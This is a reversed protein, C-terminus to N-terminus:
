VNKIREINQELIFLITHILPTKDTCICRYKGAHYDLIKLKYGHIKHKVIEGAQFIM